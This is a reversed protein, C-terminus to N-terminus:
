NAGAKFAAARAELYQVREARVKLRSRKEGTAKDNWQDLQLRGEIFILSGKHFFEGVREAQKGWLTVSVFTTEEKMEGSSDKFKENVAVDLDAVSKGTATTKSEPDRTLNGMLYVKNLNAM